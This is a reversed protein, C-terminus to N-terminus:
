VVRKCMKKYRFHSDPLGKCDNNITYGLYKLNISSNVDRDMSNGCIPCVYQRDRMTLKDDGTLRNGCNSCIQTSPYDPSAKVLPINYDFCRQTLISTFEGVRANFVDSTFLRGRRKNNSHVAKYQQIMILSNLDEIVICSPKKNVLGLTYKYLKERFIDRKRKLLKTWRCRAKKERNSLTRQTHGQNEAVKNNIRRKKSVIAQARRIRKELKQIDPSKVVTGTSDVIWNSKSMGIDIGVPDSYDKNVINSQKHRNCKRLGSVWYSRGDFSITVFRFDSDEVYVHRETRITGIKRGATISQKGLHFVEYRLFFLGKNFSEKKRLFKVSIFDSNTLSQEAVDCACFLAMKEAYSDFNNLWAYEPKTKLEVFLKAISFKSEYRCIGDGYHFEANTRLQQGLAWNFCFRHLDFYQQLLKKQEDTPRLKIKFGKFYFDSHNGLKM